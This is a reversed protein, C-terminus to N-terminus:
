ERRLTAADGTLAALSLANGTAAGLTTNDFICWREPAQSVSLEAAIRELFASDYDSRYMQPSGHLRYYDMGRWGGPLAADPVRAPDAAARAVQHDVLLQDAEPAFWTPHRPELAVPGPFGARLLSLFVKAAAADFALSPPLQVLLPGLRNQLQKITDLFVRLPEAADILRREHTIAKPLKVAFRFDEPVSEAWRAFTSPRHPRHFTTNIEVAGLRASYRELGSGVERFEDAFQRPIAWGATGIRIV